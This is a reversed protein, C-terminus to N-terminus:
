RSARRLELVDATAGGEIWALLPQRQFFLKRGIWVAGPIRKARAHRRITRVSIKGGLAAQVEVPTLMAPLM